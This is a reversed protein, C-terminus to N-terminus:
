DASPYTRNVSKEKLYALLLARAGAPKYGRKRNAAGIGFLHNYQQRLTAYSGSITARADWIHIAEAGAGNVEIIKFDRGNQLAELDRFRVDFRGFYFEDIDKAIADFAKTMKETIFDRGDRFITGQSHNGAFNLCIGRGAPVVMDLNPENKPLYIHKLKSARPDALILERLTARGNGILHPFYKLTLSFVEGIEQGPYRIYFVGAEPQFPIFEQILFVEGRPFRSIYDSLEAKNKLLRVGAGRCGMNPKAVVPFDLNERRMSKLADNLEKEIGAADISRTLSCHAALHRSAQPGAAELADLKADGVMGGMHFLPNALTPLSISGHKLSLWIWHLAMPFYFLKTPMFEFWSLHKDGMQLPPLGEHITEPWCLHDESVLKRDSSSNVTVGMAKAM